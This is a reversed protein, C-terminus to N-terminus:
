LVMERMKCYIELVKKRKKACDKGNKAGAIAGRFFKSKEKTQAISYESNM